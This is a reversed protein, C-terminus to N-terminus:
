PMRHLAVCGLRYLVMTYSVFSDFFPYCLFAGLLVEQETCDKDVSAAV